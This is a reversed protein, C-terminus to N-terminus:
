PHPNKYDFVLKVHGVGEVHFDRAGHQRRRMEPIVTNTINGLVMDSRRWKTHGDADLRMLLDPMLSIVRRGSAVPVELKDRTLLSRAVVYLRETLQEDALIV